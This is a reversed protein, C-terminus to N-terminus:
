VVGTTFMVGRRHFKVANVCPKIDSTAPSMALEKNFHVNIPIAVYVIETSDGAETTKDRHLDSLFSQAYISGYTQIALFLVCSLMLSSRIRILLYAWFIKINSENYMSVLNNKADAIYSKVLKRGFLKSLSICGDQFIPCM